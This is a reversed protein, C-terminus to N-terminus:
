EFSNIVTYVPYPLTVSQEQPSGLPRRGGYNTSISATVPYRANNGTAGDDQLIIRFNLTTSDFVRAEIAWYSNEYVTGTAATKRFIERYTSTLQSNGFSTGQLFQVNTASINSMTVYNHGVLIAGPDDLMSQWGLNREHSQSGSDLQTVDSSIRIEGGANFFHRRAAPSAFSVSITSSVSPPGEVTTTTATTTALSATTIDFPVALSYQYVSNSGTGVVYMKTGDNNFVIDRPETEESAVSFSVNDYSATSLDFATSLSYRHVSDNETGVVYMKSGDNNFALGEPVADESLVSLSVSDYGATSLDFATSLSYQYIDVANLGIVYMKTGDNNFTIERPSPDQASVSLSVSDYGATSLDFASSLSYQHVSRSSVGVVYMKTGDNNFALGIPTAEQANVNLSVSDYSATSVDFATSLSYQYVSDTGIGMIYMKTGDNSFALAFPTSDQASVNFNVSDYRDPTLDFATSLSYQHVSDSFNGIVYMKTGDNNFVVGTPSTDESAVSFSVNDYSATSVDFATSLSYQHVSNTANGLVHMKTGDNNFVLGLPSGEESAVSFSVGDYGATSLDFATSLTYQHVSGSVPGVMYMKTGDNNFALGSPLGDESAVSFSVSDYGATSLDFATSLSYQHVSDSVPGVMYMKTGDNNFALGSPFGDESAVSFSVNDYSVNSLDFGSVVVDGSGSWALTRADSVRATDIEQQSPAIDFRNTELTNMLSLYDNYGKTVDPNDFTYAGQNDFTLSTGSQDAGVIDGSNIASLPFTNGTQHLYVRSMDDRLQGIRAATMVAGSSIESASVPQGYGFDSVGAGLLSATRNRLSNYEAALIKDNPNVAM